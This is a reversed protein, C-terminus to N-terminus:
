TDAELHSSHLVIRDVVMQFASLQTFWSCAWQLVQMLYAAYSFNSTKRKEPCLAIPPFVDEM